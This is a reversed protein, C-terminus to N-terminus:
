VLKWTTSPGCDFLLKEGGIDVVYASGFAEPIPHPGGCGIITVNPTKLEKAGM